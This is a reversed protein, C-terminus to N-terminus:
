THLYVLLQCEDGAVAFVGSGSDAAILSVGGKVHHLDSLKAGTSLEWMYVLGDRTGIIGHGFLADAASARPDLPNGFIVINNMLLALRWCGGPSTQCGNSRDDHQVVLNSDTLVILWIAIDEGNLPLSVHDERAGSFLVEMAAMIERVQEEMDTSSAGFGRQKWNFFGVPIFQFISSSPASFRSLLTRKSIDWLGFEGFGNHGVILSGCKSIRKLEMVDPSKSDFSQLSFEEVQESWESNMVWVHLRGSEEVSVLHSNGCVLICRISEVAKLKVIVSVYGLKVAVVKVANEEFSQSTCASCLCHISQERCCPAKITDLFVLCQGDPTFQFGYRELAIKRGFSDKSIPLMISSYALFSPYGRIPEKIPVKYIFITRVNDGLHGCLVCINIDDGKNSYLVSLVPSPHVYCGVLTVFGKKSNHEGCGFFKEDKKQFLSVMNSCGMLNHPEVVENSADGQHNKVHSGYPDRGSAITCETAHDFVKEIQSVSPAIDFFLDKPKLNAEVIHPDRHQGNLKAEHALLVDRMLCNNSDGTEGIGTDLLADKASSTVPICVDGVNRCIISESLPGNYKRISHEEGAKQVFTSDNGTRTIGRKIDVEEQLICASSMAGTLNADEASHDSHLDTRQYTLPSGHKRYYQILKPKSIESTMIELNNPSFPPQSAKELNATKSSFVALEPRHASEKGQFTSNNPPEDARCSNSVEANFMSEAHSSSPHNNVTFNPLLVSAGETHNPVLELDKHAFDDVRSDIEVPLSSKDWNKCANYSEELFIQKNPSLCGLCDTLTEGKELRENPTTLLEDFCSEKNGDTGVHLSEKGGDVHELEEKDSTRIRCVLLEQRRDASELLGLADHNCVDKLNPAKNAIDFFIHGQNSAHNWCQEDEFSDPIVSKLDESSPISPMQPVLKSPSAENRFHCFGNSEEQIKLGVLSVPPDCKTDFIKSSQIPSRKGMPIKKLLPLARPLLVTMMSKTLEQGVSDYDSKQSSINLSSTDMDKASHLERTAAIVENRVTCPSEEPLSDTINDQQLDLTDPACLDSDNVVKSETVILIEGDSVEMTSHCGLREQKLLENNKLGVVMRTDQPFDTEERCNDFSQASEFPSGDEVSTPGNGMETTTPLDKSAPLTGQDICREHDVHSTCNCKEDHHLRQIEHKTSAAESGNSFRQPRFRKVRADSANITTMKHKRSRKGTIHPKELYSLPCQCSDPFRTEKELASAGNFFSPSLLSQEATGNINAVLERLLRQVFPNRFGFLEVGDIKCSSRKGHWMKVRPGSKKQFCDWAIDPTQGSCSQGDTSTIVFLPGKLGEHIEIRYISGIHTRVAHYGVPYPYRDKGRSSSWYKKDWTGRYVAGISIIELGDPKEGSPNAKEM